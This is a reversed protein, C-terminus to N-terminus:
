LQELDRSMQDLRSELKKQLKEFKTIDPTIKSKIINILKEKSKYVLDHM